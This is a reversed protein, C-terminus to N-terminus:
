VAPGGASTAMMMTKSALRPPPGTLRGDPLAPPVGRQLRLRLQQPPATAGAGDVKARLPNESGRRRRRRRRRRVNSVAGGGGAAM